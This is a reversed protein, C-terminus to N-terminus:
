IQGTEREGSSRSPQCDSPILSLTSSLVLLESTGKDKATVGSM